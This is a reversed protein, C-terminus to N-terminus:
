IYTWPRRRGLYSELTSMPDTLCVLCIPRGRLLGGDGGRVSRKNEQLLRVSWYVTCVRQGSGAPTVNAEREREDKWSTPNCHDDADSETCALSELPQTHTAWESEIRSGLCALTAPGPRSSKWRGIEDWGLGGVALLYGYNLKKWRSKKRLPM